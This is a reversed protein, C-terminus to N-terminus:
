LTIVKFNVTIGTVITLLQINLYTYTPRLSHVYNPKFCLLESSRAYFLIEVFIFVHCKSYQNVPLRHKWIYALDDTEKFMNCHYFCPNNGSAYAALEKTKQEDAKVRHSRVPLFKELREFTVSYSLYSENQLTHINRREPQPTQSSKNIVRSTTAVRM